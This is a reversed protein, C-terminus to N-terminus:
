ADDSDGFEERLRQKYREADEEGFLEDILEPAHQWVAKTWARYTELEEEKAAKSLRFWSFPYTERLEDSEEDSIMESGEEQFAQVASEPYGMLEGYEDHDRDPNAAKLKEVVRPIAGVVIETKQTYQNVGKEEASLGADRLLQLIRDREKEDPVIIETGPRYGLLVLLVEARPQVGIPLQKITEIRHEISEPSEFSM